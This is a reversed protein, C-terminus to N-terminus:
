KVKCTGRAEYKNSFGPATATVVIMNTDNYFAAHYLMNVNKGTTSTSQVKWNFAVKKRTVGGVEAPIAGGMYGQTMGDLVTATGADVNYDFIERDPVWGDHSANVAIACDLIKAHAPPAIMMAASAAVMLLVTKM